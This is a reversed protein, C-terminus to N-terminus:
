DDEIVVPGCACEGGAGASRSESSHCPVCTLLTQNTQNTTQAYSMAKEIRSAARPSKRANPSSGSVSAGAGARNAVATATTPTAPVSATSKMAVAAGTSVTPNSKVPSLGYGAKVWAADNGSSGAPLVGNLIGIERLQALYATTDRATYTTHM